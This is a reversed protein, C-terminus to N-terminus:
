VAFPYTEPVEGAEWESSRELPEVARTEDLHIVADFQDALHAQFYHSVRESQPLYVVGIARELRPQHLLQSLEDPERLNIMFRPVGTAHLLAEYSEELAPRVAKREAPADWNSAATVTGAYTTFGVLTADKGYKQRALQGINFEGASGMETARADGVHSNHAWIVVKAKSGLHSVLAELTEFMHRDRLNWSEIQSGFMGRYYREADRVVRANQEAIFFADPDLHGDRRALDAARKQMEMLQSVAENECSKSLGFRAAYGYAQTDEGFHEFCSYRYRARRAAEPDVRDLFELVARASAHLSYLDLGYFGIPAAGKSLTENYERLWGVFEVVDTNRWMWAPFREFSGLAEVADSDKGRGKIFRNVRHADPWDGEIAVATFGKERILWKTIKARCQYFDHTGHSAEGLLVVRSNGILEMLPDYDQRAASVSHANARLTSIQLELSPHM